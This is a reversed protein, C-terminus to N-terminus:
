VEGQREDTAKVYTGIGGNWLLDVPMRLVAKILEQGSLAKADVALMERIEPSLPISKAAREFIGGGQSILSRDYDDWTSRPLEFLRKREAYSADPDPNPDIFIHLHNFAAQLRTRDTYLMGNGFVDGSMDGIGAATFTDRFVDV